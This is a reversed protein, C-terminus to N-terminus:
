RNPLCVCAMGKLLNWKMPRNSFLPISFMACVRMIYVKCSGPVPSQDTTVMSSGPVPSHDNTVKCSGPVTSHYSTVLRLQFNMLTQRILSVKRNVQRTLAFCKPSDLIQM